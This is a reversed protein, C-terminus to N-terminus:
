GDDEEEKDDICCSPPEDDPWRLRPCGHPCYKGEVQEPCDGRVGARMYVTLLTTKM